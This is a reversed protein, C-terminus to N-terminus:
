PVMEFGETAFDADVTWARRIHLARMLEFSTRDVLSVNSTVAARFAAMARSRLESDVEIVDLGPLVEDIFRAAAGSGLRRRVLSVTEVVVYSHTVLEEGLLHQTSATVRGHSSDGADLLAYLASTDVFVKM